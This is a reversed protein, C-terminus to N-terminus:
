WNFTLSLWPLAMPIAYFPIGAFAIDGAWKEGFIRIGYIFLTGDTLLWNESVLKISKAIRVEGGIIYGVGDQSLDNRIGYGSGLTISNDNNGYTASSFVFGNLLDFDEILNGGFIYGCSVAFKDSNYPTGKVFFMMNEYFRSPIITAGGVSLYDTIGISFTPVIIENFSLYSQGAKLPRGTTMAFMRATNPDYKYYKGNNEGGELEYIYDVITDAFAIEIGSITKIFLSDNAEKKIYAIFENGDLMVLKYLIKSNASDNEWYYDEDVYDDIEYAYDVLDVSFALDKGSITKIFVSDNEEKEIYAIYEKGDLMILKYLIKSKSSDSLATSDSLNIKEDESDVAYLHCSLSLMCIIIKFLLSSKM